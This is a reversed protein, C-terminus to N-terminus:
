YPGRIHKHIRDKYFASLSQHLAQGLPPLQSAAANARAQEPTSAGPIVVSVADHDLIWRLAMETMTLREPVLAKLRDALDVGKAFPLGAFTEGVNFHQGDRNYMRHDSELFTTGESFKGTLLVSALPLRVIIGVGKVKAQPLLEKILRQRFINFIVQLSLLGDQELCILGEEVTEVSAGFHQILGDQKIRRLWDFIAGERLIGTPVCHLQLLNLSGVGLRKLSDTVSRRLAEESYRDPYVGPGRGFKTAVIIPERCQRIFNGILTESRGGGYVNATDFFNVGSEVAASMIAEATAEDVPSGWDAGLQWCGLGVESVKFGNKGLTRYKM